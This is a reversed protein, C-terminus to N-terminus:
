LQSLKSRSGHVHLLFSNCRVYWPSNSQLGFLPIPSGSTLYLGVAILSAVVPMIVGVTLLSAFYAKMYKGISDGLTRTVKRTADSSAPPMSRSSASSTAGHAPSLLNVVPSPMSASSGKTPLQNQSTASKAKITEPNDM